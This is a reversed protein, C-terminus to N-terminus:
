GRRPRRVQKGAPKAAVELDESLMGAVQAYKKSNLYQLLGPNESGAGAMIRYTEALKRHIEVGQQIYPKLMPLALRNNYVAHIFDRPTKVTSRISRSLLADKMLKNKEKLWASYEPSSRRTLVRFGPYQEPQPKELYATIRGLLNEETEVRDDYSEATDTKFWGFFRNLHVGAKVYDGSKLAELFYVINRTGPESTFNIHLESQKLVDAIEMLRTVDPHGPLAESAGKVEGSEAVGAEVGEGSKERYYKELYARSAPPVDSLMKSYHVTSREVLLKTSQEAALITAVFRIVELRVDVIPKFLPNKMGEQCVARVKEVRGVAAEFMAKDAPHIEVGAQQAAQIKPEVIAIFKELLTLEYLNWSFELIDNKGDEEDIGRVAELVKNGEAEMLQRDIRGVIVNAADGDGFVAMMTTKLEEGNNDKEAPLEAEDSM